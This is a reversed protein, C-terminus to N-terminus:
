DCLFFRKPGPFRALQSTFGTSGVYVALNPALLRVQGSESNIMGPAEGDVQGLIVWFSGDFDIVHRLGCHGLEFPFPGAGAVRPSSPAIADSSQFDMPGFIPPQGGITDTLTDIGGAYEVHAAGSRADLTRPCPGVNACSGLSIQIDFPQNRGAPLAALVRQAAVQCEAAEITACGFVIGAPPAAVTPQLTPSATGCATIAFAALAALVGSRPPMTM